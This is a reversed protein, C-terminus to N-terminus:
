LCKTRCHSEDKPKIKSLLVFFLSHLDREKFLEAWWSTWGQPRESSSCSKLNHSTGSLSYGAFAIM